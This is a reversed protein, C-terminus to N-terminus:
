SFVERFDENTESQHGTEPRAAPPEEPSRWNWMGAVPSPRSGPGVKRTVEESRVKGIGEYRRVTAYM